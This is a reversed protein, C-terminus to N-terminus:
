KFLAKAKNDAAVHQDKWAILTQVSPFGGRRLEVWAKGAARRNLAPHRPPNLDMVRPKSAKDGLAPNLRCALLQIWL